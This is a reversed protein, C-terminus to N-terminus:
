KAIRRFNAMAEKLYAEYVTADEYGIPKGNYLTYLKRHDKPDVYLPVYLPQSAEGFNTMQLDIFKRGLKNINSYSGKIRSTYV